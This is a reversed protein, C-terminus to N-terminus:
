VGHWASFVCTILVYDCTTSAFCDGLFRSHRQIQTDQRLGVLIRKSCIDAMGKILGADSTRENHTVTLPRPPRDWQLLSVYWAKGRRAGGARLPHACSKSKEWPVGRDNIKRQSGLPPLPRCHHWHCYPTNRARPVPRAATISEGFWNPLKVPQVDRDETRRGARHAM